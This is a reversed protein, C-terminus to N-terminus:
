RGGSRPHWPMPIGVLERDPSIPELIYPGMGGFITTFYVPLGGNKDNNERSLTNAIIKDLFQDYEKSGPKPMDNANMRDVFLSALEHPQFGITGPTHPALSGDHPGLSKVFAALREADFVEIPVGELALAGADAMVAERNYRNFGESGEFSPWKGLMTLRLAAAFDQKTAPPDSKAKTVYTFRAGPVTAFRDALRSAVVEPQLMNNIAAVVSFHDDDIPQVLFQITGTVEERIGTSHTLIQDFVAHYVTGPHKQFVHGSELLKKNVERLGLSDRRLTAGFDNLPPGEVLITRLNEMVGQEIRSVDRSFGDLTFVHSTGMKEAISHVKRAQSNMSFRTEIVATAVKHLLERMLEQITLSGSVRVLKARM